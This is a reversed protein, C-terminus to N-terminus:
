DRLSIWIRWSADAIWRVSPFHKHPQKSIFWCNLSMCVSMMRCKYRVVALENFLHFMRCCCYHRCSTSTLHQSFCRLPQWVLCVLAFLSDWSSKPQEAKQTPQRKRCGSVHPVVCASMPFSASEKQERPKNDLMAAMTVTVAHRCHRRAANTPSRTSVRFNYFFCSSNWNAAQALISLIVWLIKRM